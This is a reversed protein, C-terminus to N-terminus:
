GTYDRRFASFGWKTTLDTVVVTNTTPSSIAWKEELDTATVTNVLLDGESWKAQFDNFQCELDIAIVSDHSQTSTHTAADGSSLGVLWTDVLSANDVANIAAGLSTQEVATVGDSSLIYVTVSAFETSSGTDFGTTQENSTHSQSENGTFADSAALAAGLIQTEV